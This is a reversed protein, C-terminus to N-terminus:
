FSVKFQLGGTSYKVNGAAFTGASIKIFPEFTLTMKSEGRRDLSYGLSFNYFALLQFSSLTPESVTESNSFTVLQSVPQMEGDINEMTTVFQQFQYDYRYKERLFSASSVGASVFFQDTLSYQLNMPIELSLFDIEMDNSSIFSPSVTTTRVAVNEYQLRSQALILGSSVAFTENFDWKVTLGGGVNWNASSEHVNVLSSYALGFSLNRGSRLHSLDDKTVRLVEGIETDQRFVNPQNLQVPDPPTLQERDSEENLHVLGELIVSPLTSFQIEAPTDALQPREQSALLQSAEIEKSKENEIIKGEVSDADKEEDQIDAPTSLPEPISDPAPTIQEPQIQQLRADAMTEVPQHGPEFLWFASLAMLVCAAAIWRYLTQMKKAKRFRMFQNWAGLHYPEEYAQLTQKIQSIPDQTHM